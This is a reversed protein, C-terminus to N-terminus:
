VYKKLPVHFGQLGGTLSLGGYPTGIPSCAQSTPFLSPRATIARIPAFARSRFSAWTRRTKRQSLIQLVGSFLFQLHHDASPLSTRGRSERIPVRDIPASNMRSDPPQLHTDCLSLLFFAVTLHFGQLPDESM